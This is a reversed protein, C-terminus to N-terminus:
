INEVTFLKSKLAVVAKCYPCVSEIYSIICLLAATFREVKNPGVLTTFKKNHKLRLSDVGLHSPHYEHLIFKEALKKAAKLGRDSIVNQM